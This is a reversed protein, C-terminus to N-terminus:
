DEPKSSDNNANDKKPERISFTELIVQPQPTDPLGLSTKLADLEKDKDM